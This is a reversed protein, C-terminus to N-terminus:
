TSNYSLCSHWRTAMLFFFFSIVAFVELFSSMIQFSSSHNSPKNEYYTIDRSLGNHYGYLETQKSTFCFLIKASKIQMHNVHDNERNLVKLSCSCPFSTENLLPQPQTEISLNPSPSWSCVACSYSCFCSLVPPAQTAWDTLRWVEAWTMIECNTLELGADPETSIAWLRSGTESETDGERESGGGNM